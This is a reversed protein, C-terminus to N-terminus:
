EVTERRLILEGQRRRADTKLPLTRRGGHVVIDAIADWHDFSMAQRPWGARRWALVVTERIVPRSRTTLRRSNLRILNPTSELLTRRLEKRAFSSLLQSIEGAQRSLRCLAKDIGPNITERLPPLVENRIRNRTFEGSANTPDILFPQGLNKLYAEVEGRSVDLLPRVVTVQASIRRKVPIGKLGRVGTGRLVHFLVTEALDNATHATALFPASNQESVRILFAYRMARATEEVGRQGRAAAAAVDGREIVSRMGLSNALNEVWVADNASGLRLGHDYHALIPELGNKEAIALTARLMAVSDAGGSVALVIRGGVRLREYQQEIRTPLSAFPNM